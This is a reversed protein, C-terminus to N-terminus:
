WTKTSDPWSVPSPHHGVPLGRLSRLRRVLCLGSRPEDGGGDPQQRQGRNLGYSGDTPDGQVRIRSALDPFSVNIEAYAYQLGVDWRKKRDLSGRAEILGGTMDINYTLPAGGLEADHGLGHFDLNISADAAGVLTHLRGDMWYGSHGGMLAQSGNSTRVGGLGWIDPRGEHDDPLNLFVPVLAAGGGVGPETIPVVLPIFGLPRDLFSSLDFSGDEPDCFSREELGRASMTLGALVTAFGLLLNFSPNSRNM